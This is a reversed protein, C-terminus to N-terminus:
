KVTVIVAVPDGAEPTVTLMYEGEKAGAKVDYEFTLQHTEFNLKLEAPVGLVDAPVPKKDKDLVALKVLLEDKPFQLWEIKHKIRKTEGKTLFIPGVTGIEPVKSSLRKQIEIDWKKLEIGVEEQRKILEELQRKLKEKSQLEGLEQRIAKLVQELELLGIEAQGITGADSWTNANLASLVIDLRREVEPFAIKPQLLGAKLQGEEEKTVVPPNEGCVRDIRNAFKGFRDRTVETVDNVVCERHIRRYERVLSLTIDRAKGVDQVVDQVKVRADEIRDPMGHFSRVVEWRKRAGALKVLGEDLRTAFTEEEKNIEALLDGESVVLIRIAEANQGTKPGTDYNTDTAVVNLDIRYRTQVESVSALLKLQTLDFYDFGPNKLEIKQVMTVASEDRLPQSLIRALTERTEFQLRSREDIFRQLQASGNQRTDGKDLDKFKASHYAAAVGNPTSAPGASYLFARALLQV